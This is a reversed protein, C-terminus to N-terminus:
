AIPNPDSRGLLQYIAPILVLSVLLSYSLGSAITVALPQLMESGEGLALALPLMGIATTLTTMLIPRIRLQAATLIAETRSLGQQRQVEIYEVLVIANNVLIGALMILGLWVPMSLPLGSITLGLAVGSLAFPIGVLIVLPNRLSEYQVAMVTFVLFLALALLIQGTRRGQNLTEMSGAEYLSYGPPMPWNAILDQIEELIPGMPRTGDLSASIEVMRQQHDRLITQPSDTLEITALDALRLPVRPQSSGFLVLQNLDEPNSFSQPQYRLRVELSRDGEILKTITIGDLAFRLARGIENASLGLTSARQRDIRIALERNRNESSHTLNRLGQVRRLAGKLEDALASLQELDPGQIRLSIDDDGRSLRIGRIGPVRMNVRVGALQLRNVEKQMHEVWKQSSIGGREALPKLRVNISSYNSAESQSRGFVRGGVIAFIMDTEPQTNILSEIQHTIRDMGELNIGTDTSINISIRGEDMSPLFVQKASDFVPLAAGLLSIFILLVLWPHRICPQLLRSYSRQLAHILRDIFARLPNSSDRHGIGGALAPTLTLAVLLSAIIAASITFILERFLLGILGGIFLFPLVAALNTSTSAIIASNVETAAVQPANPTNLRQHRHINELMVIANDVLMGIGLALGGLTMINLSLDAAAMLIFTLLIAVPIATGIILTRRFDGLFLYVTLMALLAGSIAGQIANSLSQRVYSAQDDVPQVQIEDPILGQKKLADLQHNVGEVVAVTNAQPQKQISLKVGPQGNLRIRLREEEADDSIESIEGLRLSQDGVRIPLDRLEDLNRLRGATRGSIEGEKLRLRGGPIEQNASEIRQALDEINLGLGALRQPDTRIEIERVLGGGVEVSAVGPLNLLWNNLTYDGWDRLAVSNWQPSSVVYEAVAIQAPDRKYITPPDIEDPLFRKARDLRTSADRLAVDIDKGYEFSLDVSSRGEQTQSQISVADETIALQEELQRTIQDEMINAPVGSQTVRVRVEPYIIHPLLDVGLRELAFLGLLCLALTIMVVGVPHHVSWAALSNPTERM